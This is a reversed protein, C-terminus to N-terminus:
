SSKILKIEAERRRELGALKKGGAYVWRRLQNPVDAWDAADIRKRLTSTRYANHGLNYAFDAIAAQMEDSQEKLNPSAEIVADLCKKMEHELYEMAQAEDCHGDTLTVRQGDPYVTTGYGITPVGAPCLYADGRYGEFEQAIQCALRLAKNM